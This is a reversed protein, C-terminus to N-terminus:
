RTTVLCVRLNQVLSYLTEVLRVHVRPPVLPALLLSNPFPQPSRKHSGQSLWVWIYVFSGSGSATLNGM